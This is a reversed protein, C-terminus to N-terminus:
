SVRHENRAIIRKVNAEHMRREVIAAVCRAEHIPDRRHRFFQELVYTDLRPSVLPRYLYESKTVM